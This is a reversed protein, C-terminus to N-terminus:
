GLKELEIQQDTVKRALIKIRDILMSVGGITGPLEQTVTSQHHDKQLSGFIREIQVSQRDRCECLTDFIRQLEQTILEMAGPNRPTAPIPGLGASASGLSMVNSARYKAYEEAKRAEDTTSGYAAFQNGISEQSANFDM